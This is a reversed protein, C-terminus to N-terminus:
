GNPLKRISATPLQISPIVLPHKISREILHQYKKAIKRWDYSSVMSSRANKGLIKRLKKDQILQNLARTIGTQTPNVLLGTEHDKVIECTGGRNTAIIACGSAAAELLVNPFGEHHLSPHVLVDSNAMLKAVQQKNQAGLFLIHDNAQKSLEPYLTGTGAFAFYLHQNKKTLLKAITLLLQPGKSPIMRGVFTVLIAKQPLPKKMGPLERKKVRKCPTFVRTDVGGYVIQSDSVGLSHLFDQTAQNTATILDYSNAIFPVLYQDVLHAVSNVIKSPHIPHHACHDTLVAKTHFYRAAFPVWWSNEFFRTHSNIFTYHNKHFLKNLVAWLAIYNPITFQGKLIEFCPVRYITFGRYEEAEDAKDTNYCLVDVKVTPDAKMLHYYLEEAYQQSGGQHPYFYPTILLIRTQYM